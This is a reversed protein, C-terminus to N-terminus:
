GVSFLPYRNPKPNKNSWVIYDLLRQHPSVCRFGGTSPKPTKLAEVGTLWGTAVKKVQRACNDDQVQDLIREEEEERNGKFLVM